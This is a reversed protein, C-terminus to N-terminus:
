NTTPGKGNDVFRKEFLLIYEHKFIYFGCKLARYRWLNEQNRKGRNGEMNKVVISKLKLNRTKSMQEVIKFGLPIWEGKDYKDGIIVALYHNDDLLGIFNMVVKMFSNVFVSVNKTNSLDARNKSFKIIDHYPPHMIILQVKDKKWKKLIKIAAKKTDNRASDGQIVEQFLNQSKGGSAPWGMGLVPREKAVKAPLNSNIIRDRAIKAVKPLLEIGIGSRKLKKCEILTTGSGLFTDLVVDGKKTFRRILQNPIQPVFNGHYDGKHTSSKDRKNIIWLSDTLIDEYKKWNKLNLENIQSM